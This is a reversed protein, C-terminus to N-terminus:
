CRTPPARTPHAKHPASRAPAAALQAVPLQVLSQPQPTIRTGAAALPAAGVGFHCLTCTEPGADPEDHDHALHGLSATALLSLCLALLLARM